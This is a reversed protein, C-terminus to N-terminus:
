AGRLLVGHRGFCAAVGYYDVSLSGLIVSQTVTGVYFSAGSHVPHCTVGAQSAESFTFNFHGGLYFASCSIKYFLRFKYDSVFLTYEIVLTFCDEFVM